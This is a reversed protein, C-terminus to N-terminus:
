YLFWFAPLLSVETVSHLYVPRHDSVDIELRNYEKASVRSGSYFIRDTWSPVRNKESTDYTSTGPDYKYTPAFTIPLESFSEFLKSVKKM